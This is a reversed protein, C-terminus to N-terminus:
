EAKRDPRSLTAGSLTMFFSKSPRPAWAWNGAAKQEEIHLQNIAELQNKSLTKPDINNKVMHAIVEDYTRMGTDPPNMALPAELQNEPDVLGKYSAGEKGQMFGSQDTGTGDSTAGGTPDDGGAPGSGGLSPM